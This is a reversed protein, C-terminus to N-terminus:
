RGVVPPAPISRVVETVIQEARVGSLEAEPELLMRHALVPQAVAQVDDPIVFGRGECAAWAQACRLLALSGRPSAGLRLEPRARTAQSITTVYSAISPAVHIQGVFAAMWRMQELDTVAALAPAEGFGFGCRQLLIAEEDAHDPYGVAVRMLFRDLQAEPLRYTGELDVPNQTAVVLFPQPVEHSRGDVTVQREEMVELLASQTKPSARNIEDALVVHAFVPVPRFEFTSIRQDFVATGTIDSPLLDPTFQIRHWTADLSAAMAKALTTKGVGPVDEILLHGGALLCTLALRIPRAKGRLVMEINSSLVQYTAAFYAAADMDAVGTRNTEARTM